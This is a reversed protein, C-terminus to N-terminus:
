RVTVELAYHAVDRRDATDPPFVVLKYDGTRPLTVSYDDSADEGKNNTLRTGAPDNILLSAYENRPVSLHATLTQGKSARLLYTVDASGRLTGKLVVTTRGAPFRIRRVAQALVAASLLLFLSVLVASKRIVTPKM